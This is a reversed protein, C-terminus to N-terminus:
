RTVEIVVAPSMPRDPLMLTAQITYMGRDMRGVPAIRGDWSETYEVRGEAPITVDTLVQPFGKGDSWRWDWGPRMTRPDDLLFDYIQATPFHLTVPDPGPNGISLHFTRETDPPASRPEVAFRLVLPPAPTGVLLRAPAIPVMTEAPIKAMVSYAGVPVVTGRNSTGPWEIEYVREEGPQFELQTPTPDFVRDHAWNWVAAQMPPPDSPHDPGGHMGGGHMGGEGSGHRMSDNPACGMIAIDYTQTTPFRLTVASESRNRLTLVVTRATGVEGQPPRVEVTGTVIPRPPESQLIRETMQHLQEALARLARPALDIEAVVLKRHDRDPRYLIRFVLSDSPPDSVYRDELDMFGAERFLARVRAVQEEPLSVRVPPGDGRRFAVAWGDAGIVLEEFRGGRGGETSFRVMTDRPLVHTPYDIRGNSGHIRITRAGAACAPLTAIASFEGSGFSTGSVRRGVPRIEIIEGSTPGVEFGSLVWDESPSTGWIQIDVPQGEEISEPVVAGGIAPLSTAAPRTPEDSCGPLIAFSCCILISILFPLVSPARVSTRSEM